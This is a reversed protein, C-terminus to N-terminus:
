YVLDLGSWPVDSLAQNYAPYYGGVQENKPCSSAATTLACLTSVLTLLALRM